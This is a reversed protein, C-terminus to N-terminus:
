ETSGFPLILQEADKLQQRKWWLYGAFFAATSSAIYPHKTVFAILAMFVLFAITEKPRHILGYVIAGAVLVTFAIYAIAYVALFTLIIMFIRM